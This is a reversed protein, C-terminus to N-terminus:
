ASRLAPGNRSPTTSIACPAPAPPFRRNRGPRRISPRISSFMISIRARRVPEGCRGIRLARADGHRQPGRKRQCPAGAGCRDRDGACGRWSGARRPVSEGRGGGGGIGARAFRRAGARRGRAARHRPRRSLGTEAARDFPARGPFSEAHLARRERRTQNRPPNRRSPKPWSRGQRARLDDDAVMLRRPLVGLSGEMVSMHSDFVLVDVGADKLVAQAFSLYVFNNTRLLEKM